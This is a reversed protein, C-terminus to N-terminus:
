NKKIILKGFGFGVLLNQLFEKIKNKSEYLAKIFMTLCEINILILMSIVWLITAFIDTSDFNSNIKKSYESIENYNFLAKEIKIELTRYTKM